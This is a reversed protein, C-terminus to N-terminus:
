KRSKRERREAEEERQKQEREERQKQEEIEEFKGDRRAEFWKVLEEANSKALDADDTRAAASKTVIQVHDLTQGSATITYLVVTFSYHGLIDGLGSTAHFWLIRPEINIAPEGGGFLPEDAKSLQNIIEVRLASSFARSVLPEVDSTPQSVTVGRFEQYVNRSSDPFTTTKSTAGQAEKLVRKAATMCGTNLSLALVGILCKIAKTTM